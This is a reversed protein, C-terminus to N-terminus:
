NKVRNKLLKEFVEQGRDIPSDKYDLLGDLDDLIVSTNIFPSFLEAIKQLKKEWLIKETLNSYQKDFALIVEGVGLKLLTNANFKSLNSGCVAVSYNNDDYISDMMLVAKEGEFVIVKKHRKIAEKTKNLGYLNHNLSHNYLKNNYYLPMYKKDKVIEEDLNRVRIGILVDDQNYHPIVIQDKLLNYRIGYKEHTKKSIGERIWDQTYYKQFVDMIHKNEVESLNIDIKKKKYKELISFDELEISKTGFGTPVISTSLNFFNAIYNAAEKFECGIVKMVLEFVDFVGCNTYCMFNLTDKYLYLKQSGEDIHNHCITSYIAYQENNTSRRAGLHILLKDIDEFSLAKKINEATNM